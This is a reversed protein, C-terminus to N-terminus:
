VVLRTVLDDDVSVAGVLIMEVSDLYDLILVRAALALL